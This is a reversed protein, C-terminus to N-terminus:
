APPGPEDLIGTRIAYTAAQVRNTAGLKELLRSVHQKVTSSSLHLRRGIEANDCGETLLGLVQRERLSLEPAPGPPRRPPVTASRVSAILAGAAHPAVVSQGEAAARIGAVIEPLRADKLLYGSAGARVAEIIGDQELNVTLMLVAAGPCEDLVLRTAEVGSMEPMNMDMVVVDPRFWRCTALAARGNSADRVELGEDELLTRLGTRFLDHDDVILLRM